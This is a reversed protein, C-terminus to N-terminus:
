RTTAAHRNFPNAYDGYEDYASMDRFDYCEKVFHGQFEGTPGDKNKDLIFDITVPEEGIKSTRHLILAKAIAAEINGGGRIDGINPRKDERKEAARNIQALLVIPVGTTQTLQQLQEGVITLKANENDWKSPLPIIQFYDIIVADVQRQMIHRKTKSVIDTISGPNDDILILDGWDNLTAQARALRSWAEQEEAPDGWSGTRLSHGDIGAQQILLRKTLAKASTEGSFIVSRKGESAGNRALKLAMATKGVSPRAAILFIQPALEVGYSWYDLLHLGFRIGHKKQGTSEDQIDRIAIDVLKSVPKSKDSNPKVLQLTANQAESVLLDVDAEENKGLGTIKTGVTILRRLTAKDKVIKAHHEVNVASIVDNVLSFIYDFGGADDLKNIKGLEEKLTIADVAIDRKAMDALTTFIDQHTPRYFDAAELAGIAKYLAEPELLMAGLVQQEAEVSHPQVYETTDAQRQQV